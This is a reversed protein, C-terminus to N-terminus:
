ASLEVPWVMPPPPPLPETPTVAGDPQAHVATTPALPVPHSVTVAPALPVPFPVTVNEAAGFEPDVTRVPVIAIPPMVNASVCVVHLKVTDGSVTEIEDLAADPMMETVVVAPQAHDELPEVDQSETPPEPDPEPV